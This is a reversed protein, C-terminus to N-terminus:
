SAALEARLRALTESRARLRLRTGLEDHCEALVRCSSHAEGVMRQKAYPVLIEEEVMDREFFALVAERLRTVDGAERKSVQLAEPWDRELRARTEGDV